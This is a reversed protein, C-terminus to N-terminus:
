RRENRSRRRQPPNPSLAAQHHVTWWPGHVQVDPKAANGPARGTRLYIAAAILAVSAEDMQGPPSEQEQVVAEGRSQATGRAPALRMLALIILVFLGLALFTLGLGVGSVWLGQAWESM